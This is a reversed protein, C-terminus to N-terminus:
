EDGTITAVFFVSYPSMVILPILLPFRVGFAFLYHLREIKKRDPSHIISRGYLYNKDFTDIRGDYYNMKMAYDALKTGPYPQYISNMAYTVRCKSNFKMTAITDRLTEGPVGVLNFTNTKINLARFVTAAEIIMEDSINRNLLEKRIKESGSEIGFQVSYCGASKLIEAIEPTVLDVRVNVEFPINIKEAIYLSAFEELWERNLIFIDDHFEINAPRYMAKLQKIEEIVHAPSRQRVYLGKGAYLEKNSHNFCYTCNYPCGRSTITRVRSRCSYHRYKNILQRDPFPLEDLNQLLPRLDNKIAEKDNKIWLNQINTFNSKRALTDALELLAHEGEGRCIADM